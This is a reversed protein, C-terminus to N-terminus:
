EVVVVDAGDVLNAQGTIVINQGAELGSLIEISTGDRLGTTVAQAEAKHTDDDVNVIFITPEGNRLTVATRPVLLADTKREVLISVDAYMGSRLLRLEDQPVITVDFTRTTADAVPPIVGVVAPFEVGPYAAVQIAVNQGVELQGIRNEEISVEIEMEQSVLRAISTQSSPSVFTGEEIEVAAIVGDFPAEITAYSLQLEASDLSVEAQEIQTRAIDFDFDRFPEELLALNLQAEVLNAELPALDQDRPNTQLNYTALAAEYAATAQELQVAQPTQGVNGAWAIRDYEDQARKLEAQAQALNLVASTREDDDIFETDQLATLAIQYASRAATIEESRSGAEMKVLELQAQKLGVEANRIDMVLLEDDIKAIPDGKKVEDGVNVLIEEIEGSVRPSIQVDAKAQLNGSYNLISAISGQTVVDVEVATRRSEPQQASLETSAPVAENSCGVVFLVCMLLIISRQIM